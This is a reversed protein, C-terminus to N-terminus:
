KFLYNNMDKIIQDKTPMTRYRLFEWGEQEINTQRIGDLKLDEKSSHGAGIDCEIAIKLQPITIDIVYNLYLIPYNLIATSFIEKVIYYLEVQPKSVNEERVCSNMYAAQGNLLINRFKEKNEKTCPIKRKEKSEETRYKSNSKAWNNRTNQGIKERHELTMSIIVRKRHEEKYIPDDFLQKMYDSHNKKFEKTRHKGHM